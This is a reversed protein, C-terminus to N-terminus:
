SVACLRNSFFIEDRVEKLMQDYSLGFVASNGRRVSFQNHDNLRIQLGRYHYTNEPVFSLTLFDFDVPLIRNKLPM